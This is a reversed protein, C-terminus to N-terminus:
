FTMRLFASGYGGHFPARTGQADEVWGSDYRASPALSFRDGLHIQLAAGVGIMRARGAQPKSVRGSIGPEFALVASLPIALSVEAGALNEKNRASAGTTDGASRRFNWLSASLTSGRLPALLTAEALWRPGPSYAGRLTGGVGFQDDGFSSYTFGASLRASGVLGDTGARFKGELGPKYVIPGNADEYPTFRSSVRLSGALGFSWDGAPIAAALGGTASFGNAYAAVPFGLFSPSVAGLVAYDRASARRPGTPLNLALTAVLADRGFVYVGRLQTDTLHEVSHRSSDVRVLQTAVFASGLDIRLRGLSLIFGFPVEVQRLRRVNPLRSFTLVRAEVGTFAESEAALTQAALKGAPLVVGLFLLLSRSSV